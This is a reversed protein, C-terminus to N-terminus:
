WDGRERGAEKHGIGEDVLIVLVEVAGQLVPLAMVFLAYTIM